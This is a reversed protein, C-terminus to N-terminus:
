LKNSASVLLGAWVCPCISRCMSTYCSSFVIIYQLVMEQWLAIEQKMISSHPSSLPLQLLVICGAVFDFVVYVENCLMDRTSM